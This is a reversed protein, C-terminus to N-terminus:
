GSARAAGAFWQELLSVALWADNFALAEFLQGNTTARAWVALEVGEEERRELHRDAKGQAFAQNGAIPSCQYHGYVTFPLAEGLLNATQELNKPLGEIEDTDCEAVGIVDIPDCTDTEWEVGNQWRMPGEALPRLDLVSFLGYPLPIFASGTVQVPPAIPM